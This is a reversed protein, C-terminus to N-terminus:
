LSHDIKSISACILWIVIEWQYTGVVGHYKENGTKTVSPFNLIRPKFFLYSVRSFYGSFMESLDSVDLDTVSVFIPAFTSKFTQLLINRDYHPVPSLSPM